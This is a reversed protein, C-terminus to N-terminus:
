ESEEKAAKEAKQAAELDAQLKATESHEKDLQDALGKRAEESKALSAEVDTSKYELHAVDAKTQNLRAAAEKLAAEKDEVVKKKEKIDAQAKELDKQVDNM